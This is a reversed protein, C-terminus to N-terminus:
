QLVFRLSRIRIESDAAPSCIQPAIVKGDCFHFYVKSFILFAARKSCHSLLYSYIAHTANAASLEILSTATCPLGCQFYAM